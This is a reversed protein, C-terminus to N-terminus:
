QSLLKEKIESRVSLRKVLEYGGMFLFSSLPLLFLRTRLGKTFM